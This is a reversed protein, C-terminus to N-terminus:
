YYFLYIFAEYENYSKDEFNNIDSVKNAHAAAFARKACSAIQKGDVSLNIRRYIEIL